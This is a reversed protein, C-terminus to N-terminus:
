LSPDPMHQIPGISKLDFGNGRTRACAIALGMFVGLLCVLAKIVVNM